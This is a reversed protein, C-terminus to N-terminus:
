IVGATRAGQACLAAALGLALLAGIRRLRARREGPITVGM